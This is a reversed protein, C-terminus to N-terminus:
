VREFGFSIWFLSLCRDSRDLWCMYTYLDRQTVCALHPSFGLSFNSIHAICNKTTKSDQVNSLPVALHLLILHSRLGILSTLSTRKEM